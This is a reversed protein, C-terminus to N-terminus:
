EFIHPVFRSNNTTIGVDERIGIGAPENNIIWSGIVPEIGRYFKKVNFKEQVVVNQHVAGDFLKVDKGERGLYPKTIYSSNGLRHPKHSLFSPLLNPHGEFKNWLKACIVKTSLLMKWPPELFVTKSKLINKSFEDEIMWEWPYLKFLIKIPHNNRDVFENSDESWGIEELDISISSFGADVATQLLYHVTGWDEYTSNRMAAFYPVKSPELLRDWFSVLKEHLSNYQDFEPYLQEKWNWQIVSAELLSTPTDANYEFMKINHNIDIGLDFRGYLSVHFNNWSSEILEIAHPTLYPYDSYDGKRVTEDIVEICMSHLEQTVREIEDILKYDFCYYNYENWYEQGQITHFNMGHDEVLYKWNHRGGCSYREFKM